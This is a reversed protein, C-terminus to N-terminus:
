LLRPLERLLERTLEAQPHQGLETALVILRVATVAFTGRMMAVDDDTLRRGYGEEVADMLHPAHGWWGIAMRGFDVVWPEPRTEEFDIVHVRGGAVLWNRPTFDRHCPVREPPPLDALARVCWRALDGESKSLFPSGRTIWEDLEAEKEALLDDCPGFAEADHLRRLVVGADRRM